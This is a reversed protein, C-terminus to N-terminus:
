GVRWKGCVAAEICEDVSGFLTKVYGGSHAGIYHANKSSNTAVAKVKLERGYRGFISSGPCMGKVVVGGLDEIEKVIGMRSALDYKITSTAVFLVVDPHVKRGRLLTVIKRLEDLSCHPCGLAIYEVDSTKATNLREYSSEVQKKGVRITELPKKGGCAEDVTRAEPTVGVVHIMPIGASVALPVCLYKLDIPSMQEPLGKFVPIREVAVRGAYYGLANLDADTFESPDLSEDLEFLMQGKRNEDLHMGYNPTVGTIAVCLATPGTERNVRAGNVSNNFLVQVSEAGGLHEGQRYFFDFFPTCSYNPIAGKAEYYEMSKKFVPKLDEVFAEPIRLAGAKELDLATANITSTVSFKEVGELLKRCMEMGWRAENGKPFLQIEPIVLHSSSVSVMNQADFVRGVALLLEMAKRRGEGYKGELMEAERRRLEM